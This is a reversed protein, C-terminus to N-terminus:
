VAEAVGKNRGKAPGFRWRCHDADCWGGAFCHPLRYKRWGPGEGHESELSWDGVRKTDLSCAVQDGVKIRGDIGGLDIVGIDYPVM